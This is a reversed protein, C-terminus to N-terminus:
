GSSPPLPTHAGFEANFQRLAAMLHMEDSDAAIRSFVFCGRIDEM